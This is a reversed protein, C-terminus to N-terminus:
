KAYLRRAPPTARAAGPDAPSLAYLAIAPLSRALLSAGLLCLASVLSTIRLPIATKMSMSVVYFLAGTAGLANNWTIFSMVYDATWDNM